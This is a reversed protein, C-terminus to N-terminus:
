GEGGDDSPATAVVAYAPSDFRAREFSDFTPAFVYASEFGAIASLALAVEPFIPHQHTPDVWFTKLSSVRHPNVTEAIFLGGPRLKRRALGLMRQLEAHALHEILQASFVTGVTGDDLGELYENADALTAEVGLAQCREIMGLDSDVGHASIGEGALLALFEGRGCGVDLVPERDRVLTLYPRQSEAVRAAPGRFLEEFDVYGSGGSRMSAASRYGVVEGVPADMREFPSDAVYPLANLETEILEIERRSSRAASKMASDVDAVGRRLSEATLVLERALDELREIQEGHREGLHKAEVEVRGLRSIADARRARARAYAPALRWLLKRALARLRQRSRQLPQAFRIAQRTQDDATM